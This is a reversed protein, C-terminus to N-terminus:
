LAPALASTSQKSVRFALKFLEIIIFMLISAGWVGAWEALSLPVVGLFAGLSSNAFPLIQLAIGGIVAFLLWKNAFLSVTWFPKTLARLSFVYVLSNVGLTAFAISQAHEIDGTTSYTHLFLILAFVGGVLSVLFILSRMWTNVLLENPSRPPEKMISPREPDVTLALNPFGDSVLNIWLIQAATVPLPLPNGTIIVLLIAGIVAIIESFADTMLYLVIKRINDFIVRGEKVSEIITRFSSDLLVLDASEKAVDTADGVVIGIDARALAPADNVGDGTMAVVEGNKKLAEVLKYKEEPTTRYFLMTKRQALLKSLSSVDIKELEAGAFTHEKEVQIGLERLVALATNSYDGTIVILRIGAKKCDELAESIGSRVPDAFALIGVWTLKGEVIRKKNFSAGAQVQRKAYGIIRMGNKSLEEIAALYSDKEDQALNSWALLYEPAGNVYILKKDNKNESHLTALFRDQSSFPIEDVRTYESALRQCEAEGLQKKAWNWAAVVMPDDMNNTLAVQEALLNKDGMLKVARMQGATLTGTKDSCITTVGGLTEASVLNRVLGKRKLIRQMGIALVVTLSVLLGEPIASVALAVSTKFVEVIEIGSILGAVFVFITLGFVLFSLQKSFAKLQLELPTEVEAEQISLAIKGIETESGTFNVKMVARGSNVITGMFVKETAEKGVPAAEGTLVAESVFFRKSEVLEGDAPIKDGQNLVVIDGPVILSAEIKEIKGERYVAAIPHILKKLAALSENARNEQIFGLITNLLVAALIIISDTYEGLLITIFGAALLIYVLPSKFQSFFIKLKSAPPKEPLSNPGFKALGQVAEESTLGSHKEYM